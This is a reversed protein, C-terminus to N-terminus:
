SMKEAIVSNFGKLLEYQAELTEETGDLNVTMQVLNKKGYVAKPSESVMMPKREDPDFLQEMPVKYLKSLKLADEYKLETRGSEIRQYGTYDSKGLKEAVFEQSYDKEIRLRRLGEAIKSRFIDM